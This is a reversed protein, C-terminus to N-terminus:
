ANADNRYLKKATIYDRVSSPLGPGSWDGTERFSRRIASSRIPLLPASLMHVGAPLEGVEIGECPYVIIETEARIKRWDKWTEFTVWNDAGILLFWNPHNVPYKKLEELSRVTYSPQPLQFEIPSIEFDADNQLLLELMRVRDPFAASPESKHPAQAAPLWIVKDLSFQAQAIRALQLHGEHVPDFSGGFVCIRM